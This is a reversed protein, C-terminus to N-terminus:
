WEVSDGKSVANEEVWGGNVELAYRYESKPTYTPCPSTDCPEFNEKIDVIKGDSDIFVIDLSIECNKMWFGGQTDSEYFFLMGCQDCLSERYMLGDRREEPIRAEEACVGIERNGSYVVLDISDEACGNETLDNMFDKTEGLDEVTDGVNNVFPLLDAFNSLRDRLRDRYSFVILSGVLLFLVPIIKKLRAPTFLM